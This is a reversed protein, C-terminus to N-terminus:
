PLRNTLMDALTQRSKNVQCGSYTTWLYVSYPSVLGGGPPPCLRRARGRRGVMMM